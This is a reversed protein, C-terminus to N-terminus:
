ELNQRAILFSFRKTGLEAAFGQQGCGREQEAWGKVWLRTLMATEVPSDDMEWFVVSMGQEIRSKNGLDM